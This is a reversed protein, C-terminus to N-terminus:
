RCRRLPTRGWGPSVQASRSGLGATDGRTFRIGLFFHEHDRYGLARLGDRLGIVQPTPGWSATLAGIRLPRAREAAYAGQLLLGSCVLLVVFMVSRQWRTPASYVVVPDTDGVRRHRMGDRM